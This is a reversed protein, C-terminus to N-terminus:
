AKGHKAGRKRLFSNWEQQRRVRKRMKELKENQLRVVDVYQYDKSHDKLLLFAIALLIIIALSYIWAYASAVGLGGVTDFIALQIMGYVPNIPFMGLQVITFITAVLIIPKIIPLTIKWLIQWGTAGDIQAAEFLQGNIKQLGNLFLVVPIGSFWLVITFNNFLFTLMSALFPSYSSLIQYIFVNRVNGLQVTGSNMLQTMVTGSIVIVPLFYIIRFVTRFKFDGNMLIALILAVTVIVPVYVIEALVFQILSPTFNANRLLATVYNAIGTFTTTWGLVTLNVQHFSLYITYIFPFATFIMFGILWPMFFRYGSRSSIEKFGKNKKVKKTQKM